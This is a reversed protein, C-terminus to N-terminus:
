AFNMQVQSPHQSPKPALVLSVTMFSESVSAVDEVDTILINRVAPIYDGEIAGLDFRDPM